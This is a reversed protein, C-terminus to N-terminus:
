QENRIRPANDVNIQSITHRTRKRTAIGYITLCVVLLMTNALLGGPDGFPNEEQAIFHVFQGFQQAILTPLVSKSFITFGACMLGGIFMMFLSKLSLPMFAFEAIHYLSFLLSTVLIAAVTGYTKQLAHLMGGWFILAYVTASYLLFLFTILAPMVDPPHTFVNVIAHNGLIGSPYIGVLFGAFLITGVIVKRRESKEPLLNFHRMTRWLHLPFILGFVVGALGLVM